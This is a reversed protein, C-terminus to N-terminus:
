SFSPPQLSRFSNSGNVADTVTGIFRSSFMKNPTFPLILFCIL